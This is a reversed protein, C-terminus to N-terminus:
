IESILWNESSFSNIVDILLSLINDSVKVKEDNVHLIYGEEFSDINNQDYDISEKYSSAKYDNICEYFHEMMKNTDDYQVINDFFHNLKNDPFTKKYYQVFINLLNEINDNLNMDEDDMHNNDNTMDEHSEYNELIDEIEKIPEM